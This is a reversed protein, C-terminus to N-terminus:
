FLSCQESLGDDIIESIYFKITKCARKTEYARQTQCERKKRRPTRHNRVGRFRCHLYSMDSNVPSISIRRGFFSRCSSHCVFLICRFVRRLSTRKRQQTQLSHLRNGSSRYVTRRSGTLSVLSDPDDNKLAIFGFILLLLIAAAIGAAAGILSNKLVKGSM